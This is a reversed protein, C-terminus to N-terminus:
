VTAHRQAQPRARTLGVVYIAIPYLVLAGFTALAGCAVVLAVWGFVRRRARRHVRLYAATALLYGAFFCSAALEFLTGQSVFGLREPIVFIAFGAVTVAVARRPTNDASTSALAAPLTGSRASAYVLRSFAMVVGNVNATVILLGIVAVAYRGLSGMADQAVANIPTTALRADDPRLAIQIAAALLVYLAVVGAFSIAVMRPFDRKPNVFEEGAFAMLEWGVFAFFVLRVHTVARVLHQPAEIGVGRHHGAVLAAVAIVTLGGVFLGSLHQQWRGSARAGSRNIVLALVLVSIAGPTVLRHDDVLDAALHGGVLALAAGGPIAGLLMVDAAAGFREGLTPRVFGAIGGANPFTAGLSAIVVLLPAVIVAAFMWTVIATAGLQRYALGPLVLVGSGVVLTIALGVAPALGLVKDLESPREATM